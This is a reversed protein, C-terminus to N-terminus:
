LVHQDIDFIPTLIIILHNILQTYIGIVAIM